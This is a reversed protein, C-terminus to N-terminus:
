RFQVSDVDVRYSNSGRVISYRCTLITSQGSGINTQGACSRDQAVTAQGNLYTVLLAVAGVNFRSGNRLQVRLIPQRNQDYEARTGTVQVFRAEGELADNRQKAQQGQLVAQSLVAATQAMEACGLGACALALGALARLWRIPVRCM